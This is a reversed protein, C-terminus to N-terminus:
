EYPIIYMPLNHAYYATKQGSKIFDDIEKQSLNLEKARQLFQDLPIEEIGLLRKDENSMKSLDWDSGKDNSPLGYSSLAIQFGCHLHGYSGYHYNMDYDIKLMGIQNQDMVPTFYFWQSTDQQLGSYSWTRKQRDGTNIYDDEDYTSRLNAILQSTTWAFDLLDIDNFAALAYSIVASAITTSYDPHEGIAAPASGICVPDPASYLRVIDPDGIEQIDIQTDYIWSMSTEGSRVASNSSLGIHFVCEYTIPDIFAGRNVVSLTGYGTPEGPLIPLVVQADELHQLQEGGYVPIGTFYYGGNMIYRLWYYYGCGSNINYDVFGTSYTSGIMMATSLQPITNRYIEFHSFGASPPWALCIRDTHSSQAVYMYGWTENWFMGLTSVDGINVGGDGNVDEVVWGGPGTQNWRLGLASVDGINATYDYNPDWYPIQPPPATFSQVMGYITQGGSRAKAQLCCSLGYGGAGYGIWTESELRDCLTVSFDGPGTMTQWTLSCKHTQEGGAPWFDFSVECTGNYALYGKLQLGRYFGVQTVGVTQVNVVDLLMPETQTEEETVPPLPGVEDGEGTVVIESSGAATDAMMEALNGTENTTALFTQSLELASKGILKNGTTELTIRALTGMGTIEAKGEGLVCAGVAQLTGSENDLIGENFYASEKSTFWKSYYDGVTVSVVKVLRPDFSLDFQAGRSPVDSDLTVLVEFREGHELTKSSVEISFTPPRSILTDGASALQPIFSVGTILAIVLANLLPLSIKKWLRKLMSVEM